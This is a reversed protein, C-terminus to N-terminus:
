LGDSGGTNGANVLCFVAVTVPAPGAKRASASTLVAEEPALAREAIGLAPAVITRYGFIGYTLPSIGLRM